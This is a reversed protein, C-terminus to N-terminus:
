GSGRANPEPPRPARLAVLTAFEEALRGILQATVRQPDALAEALATAETTPLLALMRDTRAGGVALLLAAAKQPGS